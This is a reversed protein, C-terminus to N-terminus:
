LNLIFVKNGCDKIKIYGNNLMNDTESLNPNYNNTGLLKELKHKQCQYRSLIINNKIWFYNPKSDSLETFGLRKYVDGNSYRKDAYSILKNNKFDNKVQKFLKDVGGVITTNLKSALRHLEIDVNKNFRSKGISLAMVLENNYILGLYYGAKTHGQLHNNNFFTEAEKASLTKITCKRAFIKEEFNGMKACIISKCIEFKNDLEFDWFHLIPIVSMNSKDLLPIKGNGDQHWYIGNVEIGLKNDIVIDIEKPAILKRNNLSIKNLSFKNILENALKQEIISRGSSKCIPCLPIGNSSFTGTFVTNCDLHIFKYEHAADIYDNLNWDVPQINREEMTQFHNTLHTDIYKQRKTITSKEQM